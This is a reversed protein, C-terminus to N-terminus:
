KKIEETKKKILAIFSDADMINPRNQKKTTPIIFSNFCLMTMILLFTIKGAQIVILSLKNISNNIITNDKIIFTSM